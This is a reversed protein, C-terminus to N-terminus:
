RMAFDFKNAQDVLARLLDVHDGGNDVIKQLHRNMKQQDSSGMSGGGNALANVASASYTAVSAIAAPTATLNSGVTAAAGSAKAAWGLAAPDTAKIADLDGVTDGAGAGIASPMAPGGKGGAGATNKLSKEFADKAAKTMDALQQNAESVAQEQDALSAEREADRGYQDFSQKMKIRDAVMGADFEAQRFAEMVDLGTRKKNVENAFEAAGAAKSPDLKSAATVIASIGKFMTEYQSLYFRIWKTLTQFVSVGAAEFAAWANEADAMTSEFAGLFQLWITSAFSGVFALGTQLILSVKEWGTALRDYMGLWVRMVTLKGTEFAAIVGAMGVNVALTLDGAKFADSIGGFVKGVFDGLPALATMVAAVARQGSSTFKAWAVVGAIVGATVLGIPSLLSTFATAALTAATAFGSIATGVAALTAGIGVMAAGGATLVVALKAVSIFLGQNNRAWEAFQKVIEATRTVLPTVVPLLAGGIAEATNQITGKLAKMQNSFSGSTRIADGLAGQRGMSEKIIAMRAMVKQMETAGQTSKNFGMEVLKLDLAAQMINVGFMSLVEGSGSLASIFREMAEADSLNHFSAFDVALATMEKGLEAAEGQGKGLGSFFAGFTAIGTMTESKSRGVANAYADAWGKTADAAAGFVAEFKSTTEMLDGAAKIPFVFAAGMAAGVAVAKTGIATLSAGMSQLGQSFAAVMKQLGGLQQKFANLGKTLGSDKMYTSVYARGAEIDKRAM